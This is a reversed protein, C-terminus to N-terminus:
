AKGERNEEYKGIKPSNTQNPKTAAAGAKYVHEYLQKLRTRKGIDVLTQKEAIHPFRVHKTGDRKGVCTNAYSKPNKEGTKAINTM